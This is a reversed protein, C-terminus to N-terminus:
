LSEIVSRIFSNMFFLEIFVFFYAIKKSKLYLRNAKYFTFALICTLIIKLVYLGNFGFYNNVLNTIINVCFHHSIYKLNKHISFDDIINIGDRIYKEGVKIDFFIDNQLWVPSIALIYIFLLIISIFYKINNKIVKINM